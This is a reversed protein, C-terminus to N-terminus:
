IWQPREKPLFPVSRMVEDAHYSRAGIKLRGKAGMLTWQAEAFVRLPQPNGTGINEIVPHGPRLDTRMLSGLFIDAVKEVPTFDRIQEGASMAFNEGAQAAKRLSPWFCNEPQGEGYIEFPRLVLLEIKTEIALALAAMTAAAKSAGYPTTPELATDPSLFPFRDAASGHEWGCGCLILRKVGAAVAQRWLHLSQYLNAYFVEDWDANQLNVGVAAFHVLVRCQSLENMWDNDLNGELWTPEQELAVRPRSGARRLAAGRHSSQSLKKLFHGGIFGTGGTVFIKM